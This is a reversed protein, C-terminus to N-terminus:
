AREAELQEVKLVAEKRLKTAAEETRIAKFAVAQAEQIEKEIDRDAM